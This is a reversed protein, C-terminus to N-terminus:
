KRMQNQLDNLILSVKSKNFRQNHLLSLNRVSDSDNHM